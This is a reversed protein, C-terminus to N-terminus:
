NLLNLIRRKNAAMVIAKDTGPPLGCDSAIQDIRERTQVVTTPVQIKGAYFDRNSQRQNIRKQEGRMWNRWTATWDKHARPFNDCDMFADTETDIDVGPAKSDAWVKMQETVMFDIPARKRAQDRYNCDKRRQKM